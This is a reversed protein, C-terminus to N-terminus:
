YLKDTSVRGIKRSVCCLRALTVPDNVLYDNIQVLLENPLSEFVAM